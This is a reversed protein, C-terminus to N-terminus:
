RGWGFFHRIPRPSPRIPRAHSSDPLRHSSDAPENVSPLPEANPLVGSKDFLDFLSHTSVPAVGLLKLLLM